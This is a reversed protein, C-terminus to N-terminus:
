SSTSWFPSINRIWYFPKLLSINPSGNQDSPRNLLVSFEDKASYSALKGDVLVLESFVLHALRRKEQGTAHKYLRSASKVLESFTLVYDLMEAETETHAECLADVEKLEALLDDRDKKWEAPAMAGERLLSVKNEKLYDLDKNVRDRRRALDALDADRKAAIKRLASKAGGEIQRLEDDTFHIRDLVKQVAAVLVEERVNKEANACGEHCKSNYYIHGKKLYPSYARGCGCKFLGRYTFFPKDMYHVTVCKERLRQQVQYFLGEDILPAHLGDIIQEGHRMKGMYFPNVLIFEITSKSIPLSTKETVEVGELVEMKTRRRRRPKTTLGQKVAWKHLQSISWEGTAYQEFLRKVIPAREPDFVKQDSGHDLYGVPAFYTCRKESRLKKFTIKVKESTVESHYEAFMGDVNRHLKGSSTPAYDAQVFIIRIGHVDILEKVILDSQKNRSIRDWCLVIVGEYKGELLLNTMQMFKPREIAYEVKGNGSISLASAKFASHREKIVGEMMLGEISDGSIALVNKKAYKRIESEQYELSNKQNDADDTSRRTYVLFM